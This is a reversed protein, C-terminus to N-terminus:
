SLVMFITKEKNIQHLSSERWDLILTNRYRGNALDQELKTSIRGGQALEKTKFVVLHLRHFSLHGSLCQGLAGVEPCM